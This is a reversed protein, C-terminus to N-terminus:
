DRAAAVPLVLEFRAGTPEADEYLLDGGHAHAYSKAISLGLGAGGTTSRGSDDSRSFREFLDPVFETEVGRGRDEVSLRFHRDSQRASVLVPPEGYKLANTILNSVIRDFANPDAVGELEPPIELRVDAAREGAHTLLLEEIRRRVRFREPHIPIANAELRSLDLLQDVLRRTRDTQEYLTKRLQQLQEQTLENGRLYLTSAVGHVVAVPTRLEHSALSIFNSKLEDARELSLRAEREHEFLRARDLALDTLAGLSRLLELEENGFFPAYPSTWVRLAGEHLALEVAEEPEGIEGHAAVITGAADVRAVGRAGVLDAMRPLVNKTVEEPTTAGMLEAIARRLKELEPRRWLERLWAPPAFGVFFLSVSALAFLQVIVDAWAQEDRPVLGAVVLALSLVLSAAALIRMRYRAVTAHGRGGRWLRVAVVTSLLTWQALLAVVYAQFWVPRPEGEDPVDPLALTWAVVAGTIALAATDATRRPRAFSAAFRYLFYPFLVLLAIVVKQVWLPPDGDAITDAVFGEVLIFALVVFTAAGWGTPTDRRARWQAVLAIALGATLAVAGYNVVQAATTM